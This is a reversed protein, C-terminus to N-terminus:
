DGALRRRGRTKKGGSEGKEMNIEELSITMDDVYLPLKYTASFALIFPLPADVKYFKRAVESSGYLAIRGEILGTEACFELLAFLLSLDLQECSKALFDFMVAHEESLEGHLSSHVLKAADGDLFLSLYKVAKKDDSALIVREGDATPACSHIEVKTM